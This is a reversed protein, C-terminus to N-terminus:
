KQAEAFSEPYQSLSKLQSMADSSIDGTNKRAFETLYGLNLKTTYDVFRNTVDGRHDNNISLARAGHDGSFDLKKVDIRCVHPNVQTRYYVKQDTVDYVISWVTSQGQSM